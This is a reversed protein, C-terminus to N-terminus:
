RVWGTAKVLVNLIARAIHKLAGSKDCARAIGPSAAYYLRVVIRGFASQMLIKDRVSRLHETEVADAGYVATAIFCRKDARKEDPTSQQYAAEHIKTGRDLRAEREQSTRLGYKKRLYVRRECIGVEGIESIPISDDPAKM